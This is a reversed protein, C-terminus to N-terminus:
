FEYEYKNGIGKYSLNSVAKRWDDLVCSSKWSTMVFKGFGNLLLKVEM